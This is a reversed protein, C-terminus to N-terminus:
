TLDKFLLHHYSEIPPLQLGARRFLYRVQVDKTMPIIFHKYINSILEPKVKYGRPYHGFSTTIGKGGGGEEETIDEETIDQGYTSAKLSARKIVREEIQSNTLLSIIEYVDGEKAFRTFTDPDSLFKSEAVFKGFHIRKSLAQLAAIDCLVSSGHQEDDGEICLDNILRDCYWKLLDPNVDVESKTSVLLQPFSLETLIPLHLFNPFFSHEEPSTYRRVKSHLRETELLMWQFFSFPENNPGVLNLGPSLPDYITKNRRYQAREILSFIITEEQRILTSRISELSFVDSTKLYQLPLIPVSTM